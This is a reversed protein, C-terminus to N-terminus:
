SQRQVVHDAAVLGTVPTSHILAEIPSLGLERNLSFALRRSSFRTLRDLSDVTHAWPLELLALKDGEEVRASVEAIRPPNTLAILLDKAIMQSALSVERDPLSRVYQEQNMSVNIVYLFEDTFIHSPV